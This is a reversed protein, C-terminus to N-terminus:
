AEINLEIAVAHLCSSPQNYIFCFFLLKPKGHRKRIESTAVVNLEVSKILNM